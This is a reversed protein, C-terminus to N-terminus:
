PSLKISLKLSIILILVKVRQTTIKNTQFSSISIQDYYKYKEILDEIKEWVEDQEDKIELNMFIKGKTIKMIEELLPMKYKGEKTECDKM